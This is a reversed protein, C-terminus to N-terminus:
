FYMSFKSLTEFKAAYEGVSMGGQKLQLFERERAHRVDLPFYKELFKSRFLEWTMEQGEAELLQRTAKWWYEAEGILMFTAYVVRREPPCMMAEIIKEMEQIWLEAKDPDYEGNFQSPKNRRFETLSQYENTGENQPNNQQNQLLAATMDRIAQIAEVMEGNNVGNSGRTM